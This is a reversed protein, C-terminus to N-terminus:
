SDSPPAPTVTRYSRVAQCHPVAVHNAMPEDRTLPDKGAKPIAIVRDMKWNRPFHGTWLIGNFLRTMAVMARRPLQRIAATPIGDPGPAKRKPLRAILKVTETPYVFYDGPLPPVAATLFEQVQCEVQAHHSATEQTCSPPHPTFQEEWTSRWFRQEIRQPITAREQGTRNNRRLRNGSRGYRKGCNKSM